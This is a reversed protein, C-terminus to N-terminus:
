WGRKARRERRAQAKAIRALDHEDPETKPPKTPGLLEDPPMYGSAASMLALAMFTNIQKSM